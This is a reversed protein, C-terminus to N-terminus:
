RKKINNLLAKDSTKIMLYRTDSENQLQMKGKDTEHSKWLIQGNCIKTPEALLKRTKSGMIAVSADYFQNATDSM